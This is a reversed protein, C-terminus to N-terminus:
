EGMPPSWPDCWFQRAWKETEERPLPSEEIIKPLVEELPGGSARYTIVLGRILGRGEYYKVIDDM